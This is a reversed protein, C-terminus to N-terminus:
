VQWHCRLRNSYRNTSDSTISFLDKSFYGSASIENNENFRHNYKGIVDYFSAESNSLDEDDLSRLIWDSYTARGGVLLGSKGKVVPIELMVNGTVPGISVEGSLKETNADKTNIDFVSSLRGGYEAPIGGKYISVDGTTFPNLASFIGFFHTPNYLVGKDLLFLNQDARGGRVNFGQAGEGATSIGPLTVAARLIDREGLVLPITKINEVDLVTVGTVATAVNRDAEGSVVVEDLETFSEEMEFDLTGNNYIIVRKRNTAIGLSRAEIINVGAPLEISYFGNADTSTGLNTGQVVLAMETIPKGTESNRAVGSLTFTRRRNNRTQRGIRVTEIEQVEQAQEEKVFLPNVEDELPGTVQEEVKGFYEEPLQDIIINNSTLIVANDETIYFNILTEKFISELVEDLLVDNFTGSVRTRELWDEVYYFRQGTIAEIEAIAETLPKDQFSISIRQEQANGLTMFFLFLFLLFIKRM